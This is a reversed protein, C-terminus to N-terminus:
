ENIIKIMDNYYKFALEYPEDSTIDVKALKLISVPDMSSGASLFKLYNNEVYEKGYKEINSAITVASIFGTAYKYVYFKRYFHPIRSWEFKAYEHMKVSDAFYLKQLEGYKDNLEEFSISNGKNIEGHAFEEFESFMTQRFVSSNFENLISEALFKREEKDTIERLMKNALLVENVTSAVEAVFIVYDQTFYPQTKESFYSHMTHGLEHALTSVSNYTGDYNLLMFQQGIQASASYAGSQKGEAPFVDISGNTFYTSAVSHYEDGMIKVMDLVIKVADDYDINNKPKGVPAIVDSILLEEQGLTKAKGRLEQQYLPLYKRVNAVLKDYVAKSVEENFLSREFQSKFNYTKSVFDCKKLFNIFNNSLTLNFKAFGKHLNEHAQKRIDKDESLVYQTYTSNTLSLHNGNKDVIDDFKIEVNALKDFLEVFSTFNSMGAMLEEKEKTITHEKERIITEFFRQYDVLERDNKLELLFETSNASLEPSVFATAVSYETFLNMLEDSMKVNEAITSNKNLKLMAYLDLRYVKKMLTETSHLYEVIDKKTNLKGEFKKVEKIENKFFDLDKQREKESKYLLTFDWEYKSISM